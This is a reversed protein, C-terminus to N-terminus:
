SAKRHYDVTELHASVMLSTMELAAAMADAKGKPNSGRIMREVWDLRTPDENGKGKVVFRLVIPLGPCSTHPSPNDSCSCSSKGIISVKAGHADLDVSTRILELEPTQPFEFSILM